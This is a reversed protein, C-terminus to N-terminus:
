MDELEYEENRKWVYETLIHGYHKSNVTKAKEQNNGFFNSVFVGHKKEYGNLSFDAENSFFIRNSANGM